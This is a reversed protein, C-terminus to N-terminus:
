TQGKVFRRTAHTRQIKSTVWHGRGLFALNQVLERVMLYAVAPNLRRPPWDLQTAIAPLNEPFEPDNMIRVAITVADGIPDPNYDFYQDFEPWFDLEPWVHEDVEAIGMGKAIQVFDRLEHLADVVDDLSLGVAEALTGSTVQPDGWAAHKSERCFYEAVAMAAHSYPAAPQDLMTPTNGIAPKKSVEFVDNALQAVTEIWSADAIEPSYLGSLLPPLLGASLDCRLPIFKVSHTLRRVFAADMEAKVWPKGISRPTLLVVFHTCDGLGDNIKQVISDGARIEWEAWWTDIGVSTMETAIKKALDRDEHTYSLFVVPSVRHTKQAGKM